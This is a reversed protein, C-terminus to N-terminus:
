IDINENELVVASCLRVILQTKKEELKKIQFELQTQSYSLHDLLDVWARMADENDRPEKDIIDNLQNTVSILLKKHKQICKDLMEM